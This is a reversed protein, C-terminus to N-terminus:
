PPGGELVPLGMLHAKRRPDQIKRDIAARLEAQDRPTALYSGTIFADVRPPMREDLRRLHIQQRYHEARARNAAIAQEYEARAAPDPIRGPEAGPPLQVGGPLPPPEVRKPPVDSPDFGPDLSRDLLALLELWVALAASRVQARLGPDLEEAPHVEELALFAERLREPERTDVFEMSRAQAEALHKQNDTMSEAGAATSSVVLLALSCAAARFRSRERAGLRASTRARRMATCPQNRTPKRVMTWGSPAVVTFTISADGSPATAKITVSGAADDATFTVKAVSGSNPTLTGTGGTIAWTAPDPSVTLEVEEGVAIRTRARNAPSTAVTQSTITVTKKAAAAPPPAAAAPPPASAAKASAPAPAKAGSPLAVAGHVVVPAPEFALIRGQELATDICRLAADLAAHYQCSDFGWSVFQGLDNGLELLRYAGSSFAARRLRSMAFLRSLPTAQAPPDAGPRVLVLDGVRFERHSDYPM